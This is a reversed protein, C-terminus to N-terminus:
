FFFVRDPVVGTTTTKSNSKVSGLRASYLLFFVSAASFGVKFVETPISCFWLSLFALSIVSSDSFASQPFLSFSNSVRWCSSLSCLPFSFQNCFLPLVYVSFSPLLLLHDDTLVSHFLSLSLPSVHDWEGRALRPQVHKGTCNTTKIDNGLSREIYEATWIHPDNGAILIQYVTVTWGPDQGSVLWVCCTERRPKM